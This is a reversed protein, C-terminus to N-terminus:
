DRMGMVAKSRITAIGVAAAALPRHKQDPLVCDDFVGSSSKLYQLNEM